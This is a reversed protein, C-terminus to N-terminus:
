GSRAVGCPKSMLGFAALLGLAWALKHVGPQLSGRTRTETSDGTSSGQSCCSRGRGPVGPQSGLPSGCSYFEDGPEPEVAAAPAPLGAQIGGRGM